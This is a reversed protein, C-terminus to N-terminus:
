VCSTPRSLGAVKAANKLPGGPFLAYLGKIDVVGSKGIKRLSMEVGENHKERLFNVVKWHEDTLEINLNKAIDKAVEENWDEPSVLYGGEDVELERGGLTEM